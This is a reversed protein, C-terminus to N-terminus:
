ELHKIVKAPVGAVMVNEPVDKTVVSGACVVSNDGIKVGCLITSRGGVLCNKGIVTRGTRFERQTFEHELILAHAGIICNDKLTILHPFFIGFGSMVGISVKRGIRMGILRYFFAKLRLTPFISGFYIVVANVCVRFPNRAKYWYQLANTKKTRFVTKYHRM